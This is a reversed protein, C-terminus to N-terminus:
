WVKWWAKKAGKKTSGKKNSLEEYRKRNAARRFDYELREVEDLQDSGEFIIQAKLKEAIQAAKAFTEEDPSRISIANCGSEDVDTFQFLYEEGGYLTMTTAGTWFADHLNTKSMEPDAKVLALWEDVSIRQYVSSDKESSGYDFINEFVEEFYADYNCRTIHIYLAV